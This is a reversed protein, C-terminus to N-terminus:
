FNVGITAMATHVANSGISKQYAVDLNLMKWQVGAGVAFHSFENEGYNYGARVSILKNYTYEMGVNGMFCRAKEPFTYYQAALSMSVRNVDDLNVGLEGGAGVCVPLYATVQKENKKKDYKFQPGMNVANIGIVYDAGEALNLTNRYYAAVNFAVGNGTVGKALKSYLLSAGVTASFHDTLRYSYAIDFSMDMPKIPKTPNGSENFGEISKGGFFRYGAHFAHKGLRYAAAATHMYNRKIYGEEKPYIRSGASIHFKSDTYLISTPNSYIMMTKAEGFQNGGMATARASTNTELFPFSRSVKQGFAVVPTALLAMLIAINKAKM